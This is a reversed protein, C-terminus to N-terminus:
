GLVLASSRSVLYRTILGQENTQVSAMFMALHEGDQTVRGLAVELGDAVHMRLLYHRRGDPRGFVYGELEAAGGTFHAYGDPVEVGCLDIAFSFDPALLKMADGPQPSDLCAYYRELLSGHDSM